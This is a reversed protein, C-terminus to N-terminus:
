RSRGLLRDTMSRLGDIQDFLFKRKSDDVNEAMEQLEEIMNNYKQIVQMKLGDINGSVDELTTVTEPTTVGKAVLIRRRESFRSLSARLNDIRKNLLTRYFGNVDRAKVSLEDIVDCLRRIRSEVFALEDSENNWPKTASDRRDRVQDSEKERGDTFSVVVNSMLSVSFFVLLWSESM